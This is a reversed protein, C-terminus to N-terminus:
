TSQIRNRLEPHDELNKLCSIKVIKKEKQEKYENIINNIKNEETVPDNMYNTLTITEKKQNLDEENEDPDNTEQEDIVNQKSIINIYEFKDTM